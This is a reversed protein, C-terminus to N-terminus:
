LEQEIRLALQKQVYESALLVARLFEHEGANGHSKVVV